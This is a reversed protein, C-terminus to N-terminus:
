PSYSKTPRLFCKLIVGRLQYVRGTRILRVAELVKEATLLNAAGRQDDRGWRSSGPRPAQPLEQSFLNGQFLLLQGVLLFVMRRAKM